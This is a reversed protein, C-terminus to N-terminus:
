LVSSRLIEGGNRIFGCDCQILVGGAHGRKVKIVEWLAWELCQLWVSNGVGLRDGCLNLKLRPKSPSMSLRISGM